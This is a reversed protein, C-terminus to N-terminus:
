PTVQQLMEDRSVGKAQNKWALRQIYNSVRESSRFPGTVVLFRGPRGQREATLLIKANALLAQGTRFKEAERLSGLDAHVVVLTGAPLGLLWRRSASVPPSNDATKKGDSSDAASAPVAAMAPPADQAGEATNQALPVAVNPESAPTSAVDSAPSAPAVAPAGSSDLRRQDTTQLTWFLAAAILAGLLISGASWIWRNAHRPSLSLGEGMVSEHTATLALLQVGEPSVPPATTHNLLVLRVGLEPYHLCIRRLIDLNTPDMREADRMVWIQSIPGPLGPTAVSGAVLANLRQLLVLLDGPSFVHVAPPGSSLRQAAAELAPAVDALSQLVDAWVHLVPMGGDMWQGLSHQLM